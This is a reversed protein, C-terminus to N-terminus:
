GEPMKGEPSHLDVQERLWEGVKEQNARDAYWLNRSSPHPIVAARILTQGLLYDEWAMHESHPFAFAQAVGRGLLILPRPALREALAESAERARGLPFTPGPYRDILDARAFARLYGARGRGFMACLRGGSSREPLPYLPLDPDSKSGPAEGVLALCHDRHIPCKSGHRVPDLEVSLTRRTM